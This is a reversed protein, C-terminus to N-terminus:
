TFSYYKKIKRITSQFPIEDSRNVKNGYQNHIKRHCNACLTIGNDVEMREDKYEAFNNIHHARLKYGKQGCIQCIYNDREFVNKRWKRYKVSKRISVNEPTVGGKWNGHQSGSVHEIDNFNYKKLCGCSKTHGKRLNYNSIETIEGCDCKCISYGSRRSDIVILNGFRKGIEIGKRNLKNTCSHCRHSKSKLLVRWYVERVMKCDPCMVWVKKATNLSLEDVLIYRGRYKVKETLLM